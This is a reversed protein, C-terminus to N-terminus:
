ALERFGGTSHHDQFPTFTLRKAFPIFDPRKEEM